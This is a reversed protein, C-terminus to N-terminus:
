AEVVLPLAERIDRYRREIDDTDAGGLFVAGLEYTYPDQQRMESLRQGEEVEVMVMTGPYRRELAAREGATPVRTVVGDNQERIMFKAAMTWAGQGRPMAPDRGEQLRLAVQQHSAGDVLRFLPCHSKSLRANIELLGLADTEENWFFEANFAEDHWGTAAMVRGITEIMRDQVSGPLGSPYQYRELSSPADPVPLTDIVGYIETQGNRVYGELTCQHGSLREEALVHNGDVRAVDAPLDARRMLATFPDGFYPINARVEPLGAALDEPREVKLSLVSSHAKIPKVFYPPTLDVAEVADPDAPDFATFGPVVEPAAEAQLRRSWYKHEVAMVTTLDPGPLGVHRRLLPLLNTAPFDWWTVIGDIPGDHADLRGRAFDLMDDVSMRDFAELEEFTLLPHFVYRDAESVDELTRATFPEWGIVFMTSTRGGDDRTM